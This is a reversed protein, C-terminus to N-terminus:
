NDLPLLEKKIDDKRQEWEKRLGTLISRDKKSLHATDITDLIFLNTVTDQFNNLTNSLKKLQKINKKGAVPFFKKPDADTEGLSYTIDKLLKRLDHLQEDKVGEKPLQRIDNVKKDIFKKLSSKSLSDPLHKEINNRVKRFNFNVLFDRLHQHATNIQSSVNELYAGNNYFNKIHHQYLQLTRLEGALRYLEKFNKSLKLKESGDELKALRIIARLKKYGVRLQHIVEEEGGHADTINLQIDELLQQVIDKLDKKKVSLPVLFGKWWRSKM